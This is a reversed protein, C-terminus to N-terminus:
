EKGVQVSAPASRQVKQGSRQVKCRVKAGQAQPTIRRDDLALAGSACMTTTVPQLQCQHGKEEAMPASVEQMPPPTVRQLKCQHDKEEVWQGVYEVQSRAVQVTHHHYNYSIHYIIPRQISEWYLYFCLLLLCASYM